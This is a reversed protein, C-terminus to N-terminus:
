ETEEGSMSAADRMAQWREHEPDLDGTLSSIFEAFEHATFFRRPAHVRRGHWEEIFATCVDATILTVRFRKAGIRIVRRHISEIHDWQSESELEAGDLSDLISVIETCLTM